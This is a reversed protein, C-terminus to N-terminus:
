AIPLGAPLFVCCQPGPRVCEGETGPVGEQLEHDGDDRQYPGQLAAGALEGRPGPM